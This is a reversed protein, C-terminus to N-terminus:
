IAPNNYIRQFSIKYLYIKWKSALVHIDEMQIDPAHIDEM